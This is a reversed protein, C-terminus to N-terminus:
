VQLADQVESINWREEETNGVTKITGDKKTIQVDKNKLSLDGKREYEYLQSLLKITLGKQVIDMWVGGKDSTDLLANVNKLIREDGANKTDLNQIDSSGNKIKIAPIRMEGREFKTYKELVEAKKEEFYGSEEISEIHSEVEAINSSVPADEDGFIGKFKIILGRLAFSLREFVGMEQQGIWEGFDEALRGKQKVYDLYKNEYQTGYFEKRVTNLKKLLYKSDVLGDELSKAKEQLEAIDFDGMAVTKAKNKIVAHIVSENTLLAEIKKVMSEEQSVNLSAYMENLPFVAGLLSKQYESEFSGGGLAISDQITNIKPLFSNMFQGTGGTKKAEKTEAKLVEEQAQKELEKEIIPKINEKWEFVLYEGLKTGLINRKETEDSENEMADLIENKLDNPFASHGFIDYINRGGTRQIEKQELNLSEMIETYEADQMYPKLKTLAYTQISLVKEPTLTETEVQERLKVFEAAMAPDVSRQAQILTELQDLQQFCEEQFIQQEIERWFVENSQVGAAACANEFCVRRKEPNSETKLINQAIAEFIKEDEPVVVMQDLQTTATDTELNTYEQNLENLAQISNQLEINHATKETM